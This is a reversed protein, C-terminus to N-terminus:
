VEGSSTLVMWGDVFIYVKALKHIERGIKEKLLSM